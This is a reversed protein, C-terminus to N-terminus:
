VWGLRREARAVLRALLQPPESHQDPSSGTEQELEALRRHLERRLRELGEDHGAQSDKRVTLCNELARLARRAQIIAPRSKM